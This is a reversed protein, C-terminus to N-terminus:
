GGVYFCSTQTVVLMYQSCNKVSVRMIFQYVEVRGSFQDNSLLRDKSM